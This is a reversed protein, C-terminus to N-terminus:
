RRRVKARQGPSLPRPRSTIYRAYDDLDMTWDPAQQDLIVQGYRNHVTIRNGPMLVRLCQSVPLLLGDPTEREWRGAPVATDLPRTYRIALDGANINRRHYAARDRRDEAKIRRRYSM